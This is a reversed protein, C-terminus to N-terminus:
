LKMEQKLCTYLEETKSIYIKVKQETLTNELRKKYSPYRALIYYQNLEIILDNYKTQNEPLLNINKYLTMLNHTYPPEKRLQFLYYAKLMEIAQQLFFASTLLKNHKFLIVANELDDQSILLWQSLINKNNNDM